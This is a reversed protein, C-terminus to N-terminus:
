PQEALYLGNDFISFVGSTLTFGSYAKLQLKVSFRFFVRNSVGRYIARDREAFDSSNREIAKRAGQSLGGRLHGAVGVARCVNIWLERRARPRSSGAGIRISGALLALYCGYQQGAMAVTQYVPGLREIFRYVRVVASM